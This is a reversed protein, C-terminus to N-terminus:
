KGPTAGAPLPLARITDRDSPHNRLGSTLSQRCIALAAAAWPTAVLPDDEKADTFRSSWSGERSQRAILEEALLRAWEVRGKPGEWHELRLAAFAHAASWTWYYYTADRLVERDSEFHGPNHSPDFNRTLWERAAVVRPHDPPLGCRILVRVGDAAMTGYSHFRPRGARGDGAPGAKNQASDGPRFFFGGDDFREDAQDPAPPFNQCRQAFVLTREFARDSRPLKGSILAATAFVTATLNSECMPPRLDGEAPRRPPLISFGWGGYDPDAPSWGLAEDFQRARLFELWARHAALNPGSPDELRVMRSAMAATYVPFLLEGPRNRIRGDPGVFSVLYDVGKRYALRTDPGAQPMFYLASIVYPTLAPGLRLAGYTQSRWAGDPSQRDILFRGAAALSRDIRAVLAANDDRCGALAVCALCAIGALRKM